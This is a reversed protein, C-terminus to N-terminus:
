AWRQAVGLRIRSGLAGAGHLNGRAVRAEHLTVALPGALHVLGREPVLKRLLLIRGGAEALRLVLHGAPTGVTGPREPPWALDYVTAPDDGPPVRLSAYLAFEYTAAGVPCSVVQPLGLDPEFPVEHFALASV